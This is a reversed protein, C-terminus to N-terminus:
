GKQSTPLEKRDSGGDGKAKPTGLALSPRGVGVAFLAKRSLDLLEKGFFAEQPLLCPSILKKMARLASVGKVRQFRLGVQLYAPFMDELKSKKRGRRQQQQKKKEDGDALSQDVPGEAPLDAPMVPSLIPPTMKEPSVSCVAGLKAQPCKRGVGEGLVWQAWWGRLGKLSGERQVERATGKLGQSGWRRGPGVPARVRRVRTPSGM